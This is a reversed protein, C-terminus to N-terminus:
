DSGDPHCTYCSHADYHYGSVGQHDSNVEQQNSHEHCAICTFEAYDAPITHCDSCTDWEGRHKGSYIPFYPGDHDFTAGSWTVATHCM